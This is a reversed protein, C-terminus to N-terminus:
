FPLAQKGQAALPHLIALLAATGLTYPVMLSTQPEAWILAVLHTVRAPYGTVESQLPRHIISTTTTPRKTCLDGLISATHAGM